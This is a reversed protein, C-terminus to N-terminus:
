LDAARVPVITLAWLLRPSFSYFILLEPSDASVWFRAQWIGVHSNYVGLEPKKALTWLLGDVVAPLSPLSEALRTM